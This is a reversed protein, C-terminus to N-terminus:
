IHALIRSADPFILISSYLKKKRPPTTSSLSSCISLGHEEHSDSAAHSLMVSSSLNTNLKNIFENWM